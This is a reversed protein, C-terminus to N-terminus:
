EMTASVLTPLVSYTLSLSDGVSLVTSGSVAGLQTAGRFAIAASVTGGTIYLSQPMGTNNTYTFPSAGVTIATVVSPGYTWKQQQAQWNRGFSTKTGNDIIQLNGSLGRGYVCEGIYNGIGADVAIQDHVGGKLRNGVSGGVFRFGGSAGNSQTDCVFENFTGACAVDLGSNQEFNTKDIKNAIANTTLQMGNSTNFEADGGSFINGLASDVYFGFQCANAAPNLILCYSTQEGANRQTYIQAFQPKAPGTGDDYWGNLYPEVRISLRTLVAWQSIFGASSSGAGRITAAINGGLTARLFLGHGGSKPCEIVFPNADDGFSFDEVRAPANAGGDIIVANGTGTYRLVVHGHAIIRGGTIAWNPSKSSRYIGETFVIEPPSIYGNQWAQLKAFATANDTADDALAGGQKATVYNSFVREWRGGDDALIRNVGNDWTWAVVPMAGAPVSQGTDVWSTTNVVEAMFLESGTTRGYIRYRAAGAVAGWKVTITSTSGSTTINTEASPLTQGSPDLATVRYYYIGAALTGGTNATTFAANVPVALTFAGATNQKFPGAAGDGPAAYGNLFANTYRTKDLGRLLTITDVVAGLKNKFIQDATTAGYGILGAGTSAALSAALATASGGIPAVAIMNGLSDFGLLNNARAIASPLESSMGTDSIPLKLTRNTLGFLQQCFITLRDLANTIVAPYFGGGNTLDTPQLYPLTSTLVLSYDAPLVAPLQIAGGPNANQDSNLMVTYDATLNLTVSVGTSIQTRVALIDSALFVKYAFPFITATGNGIFPGATRTQSSITM